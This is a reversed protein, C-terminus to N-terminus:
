AFSRRSHVLASGVARFVSLAGFQLARTPPGPPPHLNEGHDHLDRRHGRLLHVEDRRRCRRSAGGAGARARGAGHGRVAAAAEREGSAGARSLRRTTLSWCRQRWLCRCQPRSYCRQQCAHLCVQATDGDAAGMANSGQKRKQKQWGGGLVDFRCEFGFLPGGAGCGAILGLCGCSAHRLLTRFTHTAHTQDEM